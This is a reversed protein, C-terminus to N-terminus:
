SYTYLILNGSGGGMGMGIRLKEWIWERGYERGQVGRRM